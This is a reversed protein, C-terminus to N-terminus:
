RKEGASNRGLVARVRNPLPWICYLLAIHAAVERYVHETGPAHAAPMQPLLDLDGLLRTDM